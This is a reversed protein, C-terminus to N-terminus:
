REMQPQDVAQKRTNGTYQALYGLRALEITQQSDAMIFHTGCHLCTTVTEVATQTNRLEKTRSTHPRAELDPIEHM